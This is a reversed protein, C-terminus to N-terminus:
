VGELVQFISTYVTQSISQLLVHLRELINGKEVLCPKGHSPKHYKLERLHVETTARLPYKKDRSIFLLILLGISGSATIGYILLLMSDM